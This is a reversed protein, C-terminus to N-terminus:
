TQDRRLVAAFFGDTNHLAPTLRLYRGDCVEFPIPFNSPPDVKWDLGEEGALFREIQQENEQPLLSCTVYVLRGGPKVLRAARQLIHQQLPLLSELRAIGNNSENNMSDKLGSWTRRADPKRRWSGVGSCPADVLVRDFSRKQRKCWKDRRTMDAQVTQRQVNSVGAKACRPRGRELRDADVDLSVLRGKNKMQASLQLTKGGTGACYDAVKEGPKADVLSTVLQSGEDQPEVVGTLLGPIKGLPVRQNMRIGIPSWPTPMAEFGANRIERLADERSQCKITNVRLDLPAPNQLAKAQIALEDDTRFVKQLGPWAWDPCELRTQLDMNGVELTSSRQLVDHVWPHSQLLSGQDLGFNAIRPIFGAGLAVIVRNEPSCDLGADKLRWDIRYQRRTVELLLEQVERREQTHIEKHKVRRRLAADVPTNRIDQEKLIRIASKVINNSLLTNYSSTSLALAQFPLLCFIIRMRFSRMRVAALQKIYSAKLLM